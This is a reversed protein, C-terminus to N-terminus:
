ESGEGEERREGERRSGGREGGRRGMRRNRGGMGGNTGIKWERGEGERRSGGREEGEM